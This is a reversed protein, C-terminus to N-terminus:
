THIPVKMASCCAVGSGALDMCHHARQKDGLKGYQLGLHTLGDRNAPDYPDIFSLVEHALRSDGIVLMAASIWLIDRWHSRTAM